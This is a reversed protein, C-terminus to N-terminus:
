QVIEINTKKTFCLQVIDKNSEKRMRLQASEM